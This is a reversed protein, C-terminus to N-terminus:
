CEEPIVPVPLLPLAGGGDTDDGGTGDGTGGPSLSLQGRLADLSLPDGVTVSIGMVRPLELGRMGIQATAPLSGEAVLVGNVSLMGQVRSAVAALERDNVAKLLPWGQQADASQSSKDALPALFQLVTGRVAERVQAIGVGEVVNIGISIWIPKYIPGRLFVETTVLRRPNLYACIADLFLKDPVPATPQNPDTSPIVMITVAGPADGPENPALEPNFAPMVEVRGIDV